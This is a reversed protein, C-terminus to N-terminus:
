RPASVSGAWVASAAAARAASDIPDSRDGPTAAASTSSAPLRPTASQRLLAGAQQAGLTAGDVLGSPFFGIALLLATATWMATWSGTGGEAPAPSLPARFYMTAVIRLYYAAAIAANVVGLVALVVFWPRVSGVAVDIGTTNVAGLLLAFKGWFGALAPPVGALTFLLLSLVLAALPQTRGLGALEDVHCVDRQQSGLYQLVAFVGLTALAYVSLYFVAAGLGQAAAADGSAESQPLNGALAVAVGILLYGAHAISSYALLRRLHDQWLALLNGVTMTLVALVLAARWAVGQSGPMSLVAVRILVALGAVKPLVSLLAANPHTTGQYVDPAYFQFPVAAIKFGLGAFVLILAVGALPKWAATLQLYDPDTLKRFVEVLHTSGALGYLFSFGYLLVASALINLFFYKAASEQSAVDRRGLYLLVYTPISVLELGLFALVLDASATCLMTGSVALLLSGIIEPTLGDAASRATLLVLLGGLLLVLWRLYHALPDVALPGVVATPQQAALLAAAVLLALGAVVSWCGRCRVFAGATYAVAAAVILVMEPSLARVVLATMYTEGLM